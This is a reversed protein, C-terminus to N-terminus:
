ELYRFVAFGEAQNCRAQFGRFKNMGIISDTKLIQKQGQSVHAEIAAVKDKVTADIDIWFTVNFTNMTSPGEYMLVQSVNRCASIANFHTNRHDQHVEDHYPIYARQPNIERVIKEIKIIADVNNPVKTDEYDLFFVQSVGLINAAHLAEKKRVEVNVGGGEGCTMIVFFIEDGNQAHRKISGGCGIEIDDPHAGIALIKM